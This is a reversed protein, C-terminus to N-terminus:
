LAACYEIIFQLDYNALSTEFIWDNGGTDSYQSEVTDGFCEGEPAVGDVFRDLTISDTSDRSWGM